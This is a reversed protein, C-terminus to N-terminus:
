QQVDAAVRLRLMLDPNRVQGGQGYGKEIQDVYEMGSVVKGFVSYKRNLHPSNELVIFFQSDASHPSRARAMSVIGRDHPINSFEARIKKGSGGRGNGDPDGTQAMFGEIVRHFKLGDYFKQRALEKVRAVHKPAVRPYLEIVVRGYKLDLYLTNEPDLNDAAKAVGALSLVLVFALLSKSLLSIKKM